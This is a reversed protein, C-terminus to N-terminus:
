RVLRLGTPAISQDVEPLEVVFETRHPAFVHEAVLVAVGDASYTTRLCRLVPSGTPIALLEAEAADSAAASITQRARVLRVELLEGFTAREVDARSVDAALHAPCWTTVVAFPAGDALNLRRVRLVQDVGLVDAVRGEARTFAFDVVRRVPVIGREALQAEITTLHGLGQPVPEVAVFWGLGRQSAVMSQERLLELARRVTVRSAGFQTSFEAESPLMSGAAYDGHAISERIADAIERYRLARVAVHQGIPRDGGRRWVVLV